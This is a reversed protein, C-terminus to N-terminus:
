LCVRGFFGSLLNIVGSFNEPGIKALNIQVTARAGERSAAALRLGYLPRLLSEEKTDAGGSRGGDPISVSRALDNDVVFLRALIVRSGSAALAVCLM